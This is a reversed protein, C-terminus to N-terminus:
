KMWFIAESTSEGAETRTIVNYSSETPLGDEYHTKILKLLTRVFVSEGGFSSTHTFQLDMHLDKMM